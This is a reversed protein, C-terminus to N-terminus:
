GPLYVGLNLRNGSSCRPSTERTCRPLGRLVVPYVGLVVPCSLVRSRALSEPAPHLHSRQVVAAMSHVALRSFDASLGPGDNDLKVM